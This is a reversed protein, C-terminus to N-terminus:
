NFPIAFDFADIQNDKVLGCVLTEQYALDLNQYFESDKIESSLIKCLKYRLGCDSVATQAKMEKKGERHPL